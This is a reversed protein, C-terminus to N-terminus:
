LAFHPRAIAQRRDTQRNTQRYSTVLAREIEHTVAM